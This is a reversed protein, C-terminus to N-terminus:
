RNTDYTVEELTDDLVKQILKTVEYSSFRADPRLKYTNEYEISTHSLISHSGRRYHGDSISRDPNTDGDRDWHASRPRGQSARDPISKRHSTKSKKDSMTSHSMTVKKESMNLQHQNKDISKTKSTM